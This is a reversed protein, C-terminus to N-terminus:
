DMEGGVGGWGRPRSHPVNVRRHSSTQMRYRARPPLEDYYYDEEDLSCRVSGTENDSMLVVLGSIMRPVNLPKEGRPAEYDLVVRLVLSKCGIRTFLRRTEGKM